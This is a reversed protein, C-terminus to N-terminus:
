QVFLYQRLNLAVWLTRRPLDADPVDAFRANLLAREDAGPRRSLTALWVADLMEERSRGRTAAALASEDDLLADFLPGNMLTLAQPTTPNDWAADIRGRESQGFQLLFHGDTTPSELESARVLEDPSFGNRRSDRLRYIGERFHSLYGEGADVRRGLRDWYEELSTAERMQRYFSNDPEPADVGAEPTETRLAILSDWLQEASMRRLRPGPLREDAELEGPLCERRYTESGVLLRRFAKLDYDLDIMTQVLHAVLEPNACRNIPRVDTLPGALTQGFTEHWLRNVITLTFRPNRPSVIWDALSRKGDAPEEFTAPDGFPATPTAEGKPEGDDYQYDHPLRAGFREHRLVQMRMRSNVYYATMALNSERTRHSLRQERIKERLALRGADVEKYSLTKFARERPVYHHATGFYAAFEHYDRRTWVDYPDDHCQACGIETGLFVSATAEVHALPNEADRFYYGVAPDDWYLGEADILRRVFEDYPLNERLTQKIWWRYVETDRGHVVRSQVRLADAWRNSFHSVYAESNLLRDVLAARKAAPDDADSDYFARAEAVAPVRGALDLYIRRLFLEDSLAPPPAVGANAYAANVLRDLEAAAAAPDFNPTRAVDRVEERWNPQRNWDGVDAGADIWRRLTEIQDASLPPGSSEPPMREPDSEGRHVLGFLYSGEADGPFLYDGLTTAEDLRLDGKPRENAASHCGHCREQLIPLVDRRFDPPSGTAPEGAPATAAM